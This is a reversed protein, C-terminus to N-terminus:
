ALNELVKVGVGNIPRLAHYHKHLFNVDRDLADRLVLWMIVDCHIQSFAGAGALAVKM